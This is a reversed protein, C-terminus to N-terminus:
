FLYFNCFSSLLASDPMCIFYFAICDFIIQHIFSDFILEQSVSYVLFVSFFLFFCSFVSFFILSTGFEFSFLKAVLLQFFEKRVGGEDIGEENIFVVRLPKLLDNDVASMIQELATQLLNERDILM